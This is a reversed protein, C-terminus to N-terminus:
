TIGTFPDNSGRGWLTEVWLNLFVVRIDTHKNAEILFIVLCLAFWLLDSLWRAQTALCGLTRGDPCEKREVQENRSFERNM